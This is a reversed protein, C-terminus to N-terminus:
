GASICASAAAGFGSVASSLLSPSYRKHCTRFSQGLASGRRTLDFCTLEGREELLFELRLSLGRLFRDRARDLRERLLREAIRLQDARVRQARDLCNDGREVCLEGLLDVLDNVMRIELLQFGGPAAQVIEDGVGLGVLHQLDADEINRLALKGRGQLFEFARCPILARDELFDIFLFVALKATSRIAAEDAIVIEVV